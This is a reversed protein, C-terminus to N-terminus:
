CRRLILRGLDSYSYEAPSLPFKAPLSVDTGETYDATWLDGNAGPACQSRREIPVNRSNSQRAGARFAGISGMACAARLRCRGEAFPRERPKRKHEM